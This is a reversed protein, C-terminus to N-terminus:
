EKSSKKGKSKDEGRRVQTNKPISCWFMGTEDTNYIQFLTLGEDSMLRALKKRFPAVNATDADGAEGHLM